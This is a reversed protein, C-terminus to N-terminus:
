VAARKIQKTGKVFELNSVMELVMFIIYIPFTIGEKVDSDM